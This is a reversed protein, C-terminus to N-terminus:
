EPTFGATKDAAPRSFVRGPEALAVRRAEGSSLHHGRVWFALVPMGFAAAADRFSSGATVREMRTGDVRQTIVFVRNKNMHNFM